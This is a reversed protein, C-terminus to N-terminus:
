KSKKLNKEKIENKRRWFKGTKRLEFNNLNVLNNMKEEMQRPTLHSLHFKNCYTCKYPHLIPNNPRKDAFSASQCWAAHETEYARKSFCSNLKHTNILKQHIKM